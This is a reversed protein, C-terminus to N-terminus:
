IVNEFNSFTFEQICVDGSLAFSFSEGGVGATLLVRGTCKLISIIIRITRPFAKWASAKLRRVPSIHLLMVIIIMIIVIFTTIAVLGDDKVRVHGIERSKSCLKINNYDQAEAIRFTLPEIQRADHHNGVNTGM